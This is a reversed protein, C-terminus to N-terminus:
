RALAAAAEVLQEPPVEGSTRAAVRGDGDVLVVFPFGSVGFASAASSREDDLLVPPTWGEEALWSSPPYNPQSRNTATAVTQIEVGDPFRGEEIVPVLAEVERQCHPCWHALFVLVRPAGTASPFALPSGDFTSGELAPVPEGVAPDEGGAPLAVLPQGTVTVPAVEQVAGAAVEDEDDGGGLLLAVGAALLVFVALAAPLAWKPLRTM